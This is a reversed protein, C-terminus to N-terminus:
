KNTNYEAYCCNDLTISLLDKKPPFGNFYCNIAINVGNHTVLLLKKNDYQKKLIDLFSHVRKFFDQVKEVNKDSYNKDYDWYLSKDYQYGYVGELLGFSREILSDNTIIPVHKKQNIIKATELARNLPSSFIFDFDLSKINNSLLHAQQIGTSNLPVEVCGQLKNQINWDTQGHRVVYLKM